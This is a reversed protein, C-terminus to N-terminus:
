HSNNQQLLRVLLEQLTSVHMKEYIHAIHKYTTAKSIYLSQSIIAPTMGQCLLNAIEIERATLNATEWAISEINNIDSQHYFFNKHLNNLQPVALSLAKIERESFNEDRKKDLAFLTRPKGNLDFLVFGLSYYIGLSRIYNTIFETHPEKKWTRINILPRAPDENFDRILSYRGNDAKSYYELYLTSFHKDINVLYQNCVKGNGDLFYALAQDFDCLKQLGTLIEISFAKRDHIKGCSLTFEYIKEWPITTQM